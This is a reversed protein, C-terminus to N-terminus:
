KSKNNVYKILQTDSSLYLPHKPQGDANIGFCYPDPIMALVEKSREKIFKWSGWCCVIRESQNIMHLLENNTSEVTLPSINPIAKILKQPSPTRFAYLNGFFMSGYGWSHAFNICRTITPDNYVKDARSPNLGIFLIRPKSYDWTRWLSWRYDLVIEAGSDILKVKM